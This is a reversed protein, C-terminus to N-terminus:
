MYKKICSVILEQAPIVKDLLARAQEPKGARLLAVIETYALYLPTLSLNGTMGKLTHANALATELDGSQFYPLVETELVANPFKKLFKEFLPDNNAFRKRGDSIDVGMASLDDLMGM